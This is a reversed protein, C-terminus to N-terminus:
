QWLMSHAHHPAVSGGDLHTRKQLVMAPGLATVLMLSEGIYKEM